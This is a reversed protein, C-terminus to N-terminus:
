KKTVAERYSPPAANEGNQSNIILLPMSLQRQTDNGIAHQQPQPTTVPFGIRTTQSSPMQQQPILTFTQSRPTM